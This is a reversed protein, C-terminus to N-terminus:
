TSRSETASAKQALEALETHTGLLRDLVGVTGYSGTVNWHHFDHEVSWPLGPLRYGSHTIIANCVALSTWIAFTVPHSGLIVVGAMAPLLNALLHDVFHVYHTAIGISERFEHHIRHFRRFLSKRHMTRHAAYFGIEEIVVLGVLDLAIRWWAPPPAGLDVGRLQLLAYVLALAPLSGFLQNKLVVRVAKSLAPGGRQTGIPREQIRRRRLWDPPDPADLRRDMAITIGGLLWFWAMYFAFGLGIFLGATGFLEVAGLYLPAGFSHVAALVCPLVVAYTLNDSIRPPSYRFRTRM